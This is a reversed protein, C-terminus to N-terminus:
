PPFLSSLQVDIWYMKGGFVVAKTSFICQVIKWTLILHPPLENLVFVQIYQIEVYCLFPFFLSCLASSLGSFDRELNLLGGTSMNFLM